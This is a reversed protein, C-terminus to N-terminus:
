HDAIFPREATNDTASSGADALVLIDNLAGVVVNDQLRIDRVSNGSAKGTIGFGGVLDIGKTLVHYFMSVVPNRTIWNRSLEVKTVSNGTATLTTEGDGWGGFLVIAPVDTDVHNNFIRVDTMNNSVGQQAGMLVIGGEPDINNLRSGQTEIRITNEGILIHSIENETTPKINYGGTQGGAIFIGSHFPATPPVTADITNGQITINNITNKAAGCVGTLIHIGSGGGGELVNGLISVNTIINNEPYIVPKINPDIYDTAGDGTIVVIADRKGGYTLTGPALHVQNGFISVGNVTNANGGVDGAYIRIGAMPKGEITNYAIVAGSVTNDHSNLWAGAGLNIGFGAGETVPTIRIANYAITLNETADGRVIVSVDIGEGTSEITNGSINTNVWKNRSEGSQGGQGHPSFLIIGYNHIDTLVLNSINNSTFITSSTTSGLMVAIDFNQMAVAWITNGSSYIQFGCINAGGEQKGIGNTLTIDPKGDNDIDGNIVVSGWWLPPLEKGNWSGINIVTGKLNPAFRITYVGPSNDTTQLAERLSIGDSGPNAILRQVSTVDGNISDSGSTVTIVTGRDLPAVPLPVSPLPEKYASAGTESEDLYKNFNAVIGLDSIITITILNESGLIQVVPDEVWGEFSFGPSTIAKITLTTGTSYKGDQDPSPTVEIKGGEEPTVRTKLSYTAPQPKVPTDVPPTPTSPPTPTLIPSPIPKITPTIIPSQTPGVCSVAVTVLVLILLVFYGRKM